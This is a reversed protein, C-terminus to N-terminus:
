TLEGTASDIALLNQLFSRARVSDRILITKEEILGLDAFHLMAKVVLITM